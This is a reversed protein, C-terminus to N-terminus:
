RQWFSSSYEVSSCRLTMQSDTAWSRTLMESLMCPVRATWFIISKRDVRLCALTTEAENLVMSKHSPYLSIESVVGLDMRDDDREAKVNNHEDLIEIAVMHDLLAEVLQSRLVVLYPYRYSREASIKVLENVWNM